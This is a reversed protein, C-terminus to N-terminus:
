KHNRAKRTFGYLLTDFNFTPSSYNSKMSNRHHDQHNTTSVWWSPAQFPFNDEIPPTHVLLNCVSLVGTAVQLSQASTEVAVLPLLFPFIYALIYEGMTVANAASPPTYTHFKHHFRHIRRYLHPHEHFAKHISYYQWSHFFLICLISGLSQLWTEEIGDRDEVCFVVAAMIYIPLGYLFPNIISAVWAERHLEIGGPQKWLKRVTDISWIELLVTMLLTFVIVMTGERASEEFRVFTGDLAGM